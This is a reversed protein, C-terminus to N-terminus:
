ETWTDYIPEIPIREAKESGFLYVLLARINRDMEKQTYKPVEYPMSASYGVYVTGEPGYLYEVDEAEKPYGQPLDAIMGNDAYEAIDSMRPSPCDMAEEFEPRVAENTLAAGYLYAAYCYMSM